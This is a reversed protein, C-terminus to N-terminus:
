SDDDYDDHIVIEKGTMIDQNYLNPLESTFSSPLLAEDLQLSGRPDLNVLKKANEIWSSRNNKGGNNNNNNNYPDDSRM